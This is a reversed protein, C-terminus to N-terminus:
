YLTIGIGSLRSEGTDSIINETDLEAVENKIRNKKAAKKCAALTPKGVFVDDNVVCFCFSLCSATNSNNQRTLLM